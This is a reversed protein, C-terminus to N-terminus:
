ITLIHASRFFRERCSKRGATLFLNRGVLQNSVIDAIKDSASPGSPVPQTICPSVHDSLIATLAVKVMEKDTGVIKVWGDALGETRETHDRVVLVHKGLYHAEEQVGGSDTVIVHSRLLLQIFDGYKMPDTLHVNPLDGLLTYASQRINPNPHVPYVFRVNQFSSATERIGSLVHPLKAGFGERRHLTIVALIGTPDIGNMRAAALHERQSHSIERIADIATSGTVAIAGEPVGERILNAKAQETPAFHFRAIRAIVQRNFEEPFPSEVHCTRLGAEVHAVPISHYFCSLATSFSTTTDGHVLVLDPGENRFIEELGSLISRTLASLSQGPRMVMLDLDPRLGFAGLAQDLLERHQGTSILKIGLDTKRKLAKYVPAM